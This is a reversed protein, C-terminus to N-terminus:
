QIRRIYDAETDDDSFDDDLVVVRDVVAEPVDHRDFAVNNLNTMEFSITHSNSPSEIEDWLQEVDELDDPIDWM